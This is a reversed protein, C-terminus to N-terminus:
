FYLRAPFELSTRCLVDFAKLGRMSVSSCLNWLPNLRLHVRISASPHTDAWPHCAFSQLASSNFPVSPSRRPVAAARAATLPSITHASTKALVESSHGRRVELQWTVGNGCEPHADAVDGLYRQFFQPLTISARHHHITDIRRAMAGEVADTVFGVQQQVFNAPM